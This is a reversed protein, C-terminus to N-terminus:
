RGGYPGVPVHGRVAAEYAAAEIDAMSKSMSSIQWLAEDGDRPLLRAGAYTYM